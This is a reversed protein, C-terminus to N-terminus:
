NACIHLCREQLRRRSELDRSGRSRRPAAGIAVARGSRRFQQALSGGAAITLICLLGLLTLRRRKMATPDRPHYRTPSSTPQPRIAARGTRALASSRRSISASRGAVAPGRPPSRAPKGADRLLRALHYHVDAPDRITSCASRAIPPSPRRANDLTSPPVRSSGTRRRARASQGCPLAPREEGRGGTALPKM